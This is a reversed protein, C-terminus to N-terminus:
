TKKEEKPALFARAKRESERRYKRQCIRCKRDGETKNIILNDGSYPHGQPCTTKRANMASAGVGRLTNIRGSVPEMHDPNVCARNRCLHDITEETIKGVLCEYAARHALYRLKNWQTLGYGNRTKNATWNWCGTAHDIRVKNWFREPLRPDGFQVMVVGRLFLPGKERGTILEPADGLHRQSFLGKKGQCYGTILRDISLIM